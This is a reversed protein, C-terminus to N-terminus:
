RVGFKPFQKQPSLFDVFTQVRFCFRGIVAPLKAPVLMLFHHAFIKRGGCFLKNLIGRIFKTDARSRHFELNLGSFIQGRLCFLNKTLCICFNCLLRGQLQGPQGRLLLTFYGTLQRSTINM